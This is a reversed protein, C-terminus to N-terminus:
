SWHTHVIRQTSTGLCTQFDGKAVLCFQRKTLICSNDDIAVHVIGALPATLHRHIRSLPSHAEDGAFDPFHLVVIYRNNRRLSREGHASGVKPDPWNISLIARKEQFALHPHAPSSGLLLSSSRLSAYYIQRM